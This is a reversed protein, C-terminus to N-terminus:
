YSCRLTESLLSSSFSSLTSSTRVTLPLANWLRISSLFYSHKYIDTRAFPIFFNNPQRTQSQTQSLHDTPIDILDNLAKYLITTKARARRESLPVWELEQLMPTVRVERSFNNFVFRAARRQVAELQNIKTGTHPDWVSSCYEVSDSM